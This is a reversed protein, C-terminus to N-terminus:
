LFCFFLAPQSASSSAPGSVGWHGPIPLGPGQVVSSCPPLFYSSENLTCLLLKVGLDQRYEGYSVLFKVLLDRSQSVTGPCTELQFYLCRLFGQVYFHPHMAAKDKLSSPWSEETSFRAGPLCSCISSSRLCGGNMDWDVQAPAGRSALAESQMLVNLAVPM